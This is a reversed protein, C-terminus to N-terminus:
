RFFLHVLLYMPVGGTLWDPHWFESDVTCLSIFYQVGQAKIYCIISTQLKRTPSVCNSRSFHPNMYIIKIYPGSISTLSYSIYRHRYKHRLSQDLPPPDGARALQELNQILDRVFKAGFYWLQAYVTCRRNIKNMKVYFMGTNLQTELM